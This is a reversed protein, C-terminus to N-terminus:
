SSPRPMPGTIRRNVCSRPGPTWTAKLSQWPGPTRLISLYVGLATGTALLWLERGPEIGELTFLGNATASLWLPDGPNLDSLRPTLPGEPIENFYIELPREQPPNVLSYPRGVRDGDIDLAVKVFQGATFDAVPADIQMSYLGDKWRRKAVVKGKVWENM